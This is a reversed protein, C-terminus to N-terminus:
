VRELQHNFAKYVEEISYNEEALALPLEAAIHDLLRDIDEFRLHNNIALRLGTNKYPVSPYVALNTYFGLRMLRRVMNYGVAPTGVSIFGVPAKSESFLPIGKEEAQLNFYAIRERLAAQLPPLEDSLHLRLSAIAAGLLPPQIPGSFILTGGCVRVKRRSAEDPYILVGGATAFSKALSATVYMRPHYPLRSFVSGCGKEGMWGSGHADDIYLHFQEYTDLLVKLEDLPAFDGFMSYIGDALYWIKRHTDKLKRIRNELMGIHSHRIMEIKVGRSRLQHMAMGLSAHVQHDMIVADEDEILVPLNSLHGLTLSPALILPHPFIQQLLEEAEGYLAASLYARSSAFQSGYRHVADIAGAKIRPHLEIGLYSCSGFNVLEKGKIQVTRGNAVQDEVLLHIIGQDAAYSVTKEITELQQTSRSKAMIRRPNHKYIPLFTSPSFAGFFSLFYM